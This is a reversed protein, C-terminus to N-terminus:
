TINGLPVAQFPMWYEDNAAPAGGGMTTVVNVNGDATIQIGFSIVASSRERWANVWFNASPHFNVDPINFVIAGPASTSAKFAGGIILNDEADLRYQLPQNGSSGNFTTSSLWNTNYSPTQWTSSSNLMLPATSGFYAPKTIDGGSFMLWVTSGVAPIPIGPDVPEASRIEALGAVQPCQVRIKKSNTADVNSTVLARYIANYKPQM